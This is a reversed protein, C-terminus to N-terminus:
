GKWEVVKSIYGPSDLKGILIDVCELCVDESIPSDHAGGNRYRNIVRQLGRKAFASSTLFAGNSLGALYEHFAIRLESANPKPPSLLYPFTGLTPAKNGELFGMLSREASDAHDYTFVKGSAQRFGDLVQGLEVELAKVVEISVPAYDMQPAHGQSELQLLATALFHRVKPVLRDWKESSIRSLVLKKGEADVGADASDAWRRWVAEEIELAGLIDNEQESQSSWLLDKAFGGYNVHLTKLTGNCLAVLDNADSPRYGRRLVRLALRRLGLRFRDSRVNESEADDSGSFGIHGCSAAGTVRHHRDYEREYAALHRLACLFGQFRLPNDAGHGTISDWCVLHFQDLRDETPQDSWLRHWSEELTMSDLHEAVVDEAEAETLQDDLKLEDVGPDLNFSRDLPLFQISQGGSWRITDTGTWPQMPTQLNFINGPLVNWIGSLAAMSPTESNKGPFRGYASDERPGDPNVCWAAIPSISALVTLRARLDSVPRSRLSAMAQHPDDSSGATIFLMRNRGDGLHHDRFHLAKDESTFFAFAGDVSNWDGLLPVEAILVVICESGLEYLTEGHDWGRFPCLQGWLGTVRDLIDFRKWHLIEAHDLRKIGTRTVCVGLGRETNSALVTPLAAGAEEVRIMFMFREPFADSDAGEIGALGEGAARRMFKWPDGVSIIDAPGHGLSDLDAAFKDLWARAGFEDPMVAAVAGAPYVGGGAFLNGGVTIAYANRLKEFHDTM